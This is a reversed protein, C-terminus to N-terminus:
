ECRACFACPATHNSYARLARMQACNSPRKINGQAPKAGGVGGSGVRGNHSCPPFGAPPLSIVDPLCPTASLDAVCLNSERTMVARKTLPKTFPACSFLPEDKRADAIPEANEAGRPSRRTHRHRRKGAFSRGFLRAGGKVLELIKKCYFTDIDVCLIYIYYIYQSFGCFPSSLDSVSHYITPSLTHLPCPINETITGNVATNNYRIFAETAGSSCRPKENQERPRPYSLSM